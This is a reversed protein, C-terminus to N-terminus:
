STEQRTQRRALIAAARAQVAQAASAVEARGQERARRKPDSSKTFPIVNSAGRVDERAHPLSEGQQDQAPTLSDSLSNEEDTGSGSTTPPQHRLPDPPLTGGTSPAELQSTSTSPLPEDQTLASPSSFSRQHAENASPMTLASSDDPETTNASEKSSRQDKMRRAKQSAQNSVNLGDALKRYEEDDPVELREYVTRAIILRYEDARRAKHSGARVLEILGVERMWALYRRATSYGIECDTAFRAVGCKISTGDPNAYSSVVLAAGKLQRGIRARRILGNWQSLMKGGLTDASETRPEDDPNLHASM